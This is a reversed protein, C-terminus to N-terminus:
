NKIMLQACEIAISIFRERRIRHPTIFYRGWFTKNAYEDAMSQLQWFIDAPLNHTNSQEM